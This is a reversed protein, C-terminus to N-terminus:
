ELTNKASADSLVYSSVFSVHRTFLIVDLATCPVDIKDKQGRDPCYDNTLHFVDISKLFQCSSLLWGHARRSVINSNSDSDKYM